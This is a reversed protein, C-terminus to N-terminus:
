GGLIQSVRKIFVELTPEQGAGHNAHGERTRECLVTRREQGLIDTGLELTCCRGQDLMRGAENWIDGILRAGDAELARLMRAPGHFFAKRLAM